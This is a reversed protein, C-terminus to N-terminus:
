SALYKNYEAVLAQEKETSYAEILEEYDTASMINTVMRDYHLKLTHFLQTNKTQDLTSLKEGVKHNITKIFDQKYNALNLRIIVGNYLTNYKNVHNLRDLEVRIQETSLKLTQEKTLKKYDMWVLPNKPAVTLDKTALYTNEYKNRLTTKEDLTTIVQNHLNVGGIIGFTMTPIIIVLGIVAIIKGNIKNLFDVLKTYITSKKKNKNKSM